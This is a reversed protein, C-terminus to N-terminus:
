AIASSAVRPSHFHCPLYAKFLAIARNKVADVKLTLLPTDKELERVFSVFDYLNKPNTRGSFVLESQESIKEDERHEQFLIFPSLDNKLSAEEYEWLSLSPEQVLHVLSQNPGIPKIASDRIAKAAQQVVFFWWDGSMKKGPMDEAHQELRFHFFDKPRIGEIENDYAKEPFNDSAIIMLQEATPELNRWKLFQFLSTSNLADKIELRRRFDGVIQYTRVFRQPCDFLVIQCNNWFEDHYHRPHTPDNNIFFEEFGHATASLLGAQQCTKRVEDSSLSKNTGILVITENIELTKM